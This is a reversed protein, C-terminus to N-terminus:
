HRNLTRLQRLSETPSMQNLQTTTKVFNSLRVVKEM